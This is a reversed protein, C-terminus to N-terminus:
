RPASRSRWGVPRLSRLCQMRLTFGGNKGTSVDTSLLIAFDSRPWPLVGCVWDGPLGYRSPHGFGTLRGPCRRHPRPPRQSPLAQDLVRDRRHRFTRDRPQRAGSGSCIIISQSPNSDRIRRCVEVGSFRPLNLDVLAIDFPGSDNYRDIAKEGDEAEIVRYRARRLFQAVLERLGEEDEVLLLNAPSAAM